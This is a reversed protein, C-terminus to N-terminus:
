NDFWFILWGVTAALTAALAAVNLRGSFLRSREFLQIPCRLPAGPDANGPWKM